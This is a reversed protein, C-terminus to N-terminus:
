EKLLKILENYGINAQKMMDKLTFPNIDKHMPIIILTNGKKYKAHSGSQSKFEFGIKSIAKILEQPKLVPYKPM